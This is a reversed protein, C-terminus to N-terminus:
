QGSTRKPGTAPRSPIKGLGWGGQTGTSDATGSGNSQLPTLQTTGGVNVATPTTGGFNVPNSPTKSGLYQSYARFYWSQAGGSDNQSPLALFHGRSAGLDVVHPAPFSPDTDAEVIYQINKNIPPNHTLTVHVLGSAAKVNVADIPPPADIPQTPDAGVTGGLNNVADRISTLSSVLFKGFVPVKRFAAIERDIALM